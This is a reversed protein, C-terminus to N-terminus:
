WYSGRLFGRERGPQGWCSSRRSLPVYQAKGLARRWTQGYVVSVKRAFSWLPTPTKDGAAFICACAMTLRAFKFDSISSLSRTQPSASASASASSAPARLCASSNLTANSSSIEVVGSFIFSSCTLCSADKSVSVFGVVGGDRTSPESAAATADADNEDSGGFGSEAPPADDTKRCVLTEDNSRSTALSKTVRM